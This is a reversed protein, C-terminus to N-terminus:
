RELVFDDSPEGASWPDVDPKDYVWDEDSAHWYFSPALDLQNFFGGIDTRAGVWVNGTITLGDGRDGAVAQRIDDYEALTALSALRSSLATCDEVAEAWAWETRASPPAQRAGEALFFFCSTPANPVTFEGRAADCTSLAGGAGGGDGAFGGAGAGGGSDGGGAQGAAGAPGSGGNGGGLDSGGVGAIAPAGAQGADAGGLGSTEISCHALLAAFALLSLGSGAGWRGLTGNRRVPAM